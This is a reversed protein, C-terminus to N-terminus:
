PADAKGRRAREAESEAKLKWYVNVFSLVAGGLTGAITFLPTVKLWRDLLLGGAMFLVVGGAFTCGLAVYTYGRGVEQEASPEPQM